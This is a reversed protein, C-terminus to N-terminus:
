GELGLLFFFLFLTALRHIVQRGEGVRPPSRGGGDRERETAASGGEWGADGWAGEAESGTALCWGELFM